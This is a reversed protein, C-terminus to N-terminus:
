QTMILELTQGGGVRVRRMMSGGQYGAGPVEWRVSSVVFWEGDPLDRFRFAGQADCASQRVHENYRPDDNTFEIASWVPAFGSRVNGYLHIMREKAYVTVPVAYVALAACTRVEGGRTRLLATGEIANDGVGESWRPAEYPAKLTVATPQFCGSLLCVAAPILRARM